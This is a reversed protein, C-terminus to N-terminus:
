RTGGEQLTALDTAFGPYSTCVADWGTIFSTGGAVLAGVAGAMAIRHDGASEVLGPRLRAGGAIVLGDPRPASDAGLAALLAVTTAVRDSEKLRLEAADGIVTEGQAVAAAVALVPVEDILGPVEDGEITTGRLDPSYRATITATTTAADTRREHIDANMRKLVDLFAARAPGVYVDFVTIESGPVICGAVLWFAAQSPDGPVSLNCPTLTSPRLTTTLGDAAVSIDAGFDALM